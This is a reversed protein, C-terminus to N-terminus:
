TLNGFVNSKLCWAPLAASQGNDSAAQLPEVCVRIGPLFLGHLHM